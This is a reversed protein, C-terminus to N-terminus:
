EQSIFEGAVRTIADEEWSERKRTSGKRREKLTWGREPRLIM